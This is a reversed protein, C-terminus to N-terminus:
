ATRGLGALHGSQSEISPILLSLSCVIVTPKHFYPRVSLSTDTFLVSVRARRKDIIRPWIRFLFVLTCCLTFTTATTGTIVWWFM